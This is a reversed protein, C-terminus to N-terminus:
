WSEYPLQIAIEKSCMFSTSTTLFWPEQISRTLISIAAFIAKFQLALALPELGGINRGNMPHQHKRNM